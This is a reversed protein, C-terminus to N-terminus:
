IHSWLKRIIIHRILGQSVNYEIALQVQTVKGTAYKERIERVKVEDLKARGNNEGKSLPPLNKVAQCARCVNVGTRKSKNIITRTIQRVKNCEDCKLEFLTKSYEKFNEKHEQYYKNNQKLVKERNQETYLKKDILKKRKKPDQDEIEMKYKDCNKVNDAQSCYKLNNVKNNLKNRDIHDIVQNEPREGIFLKAVIHHVLHNIRKGDKMQQFYKYGINQISCKLEKYSGNILKRRVNGISSVEYDNFYAKYIEEM